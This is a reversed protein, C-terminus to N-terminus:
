KSKKVTYRNPFIIFDLPHFFELIKTIIIPFVFSAIIGISIQVVSSTLGIKFLLARTGAACITHMLYVPMTYKACFSLFKGNKNKSFHSIIGIVGICALLGAVLRFAQYNKLNYKQSIVSLALFVAFLIPYLVFPTKIKGKFIQIFMGFQFWFVCILPTFILYPVSVLTKSYVFECISNTFLFALTSFIAFFFFSKKNKFTPVFLFLVFLVILFWYPADPHIFLTDIISGNESSNVSNAFIKKMAFSATSFVFYPVLLVVFKKSAVKTHEFFGTAKTYKQYLYGSAIFFLPVHFFYITNNFWQYFESNYIIGSKLMSQFFHGLVVLVCAFIKVNDVSAERSKKEAM